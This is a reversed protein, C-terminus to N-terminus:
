ADRLVRGTLMRAPTGEVPCARPRGRVLVARTAACLNPEDAPSWLQRDGRRYDHVIIRTVADGHLESVTRLEAHCPM